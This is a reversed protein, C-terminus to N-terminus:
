EPKTPWVVNVLNTNIDITMSASTSPLDRLSQRYIRWEERKEDTLNNDAIHTWDTSLLLSDRKLRLKVPAIATLASAYLADVSSADDLWNQITNREEM